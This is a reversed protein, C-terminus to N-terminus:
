LWFGRRELIWTAIYDLLYRFNLLTRHLYSHSLLQSVWHELWVTFPTFFTYSSGVFPWSQRQFFISSALDWFILSASYHWCTCKLTKSLLNWGVGHEIPLVFILKRASWHLIECVFWEVWGWRGRRHRWGTTCPSPTAGCTHVVM